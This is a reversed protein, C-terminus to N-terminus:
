EKKRAKPRPPGDHGLRTRQIVLDPVVMDYVRDAARAEDVDVAMEHMFHRAWLGELAQAQVPALHARRFLRQGHDVVVDLGGVPARPM